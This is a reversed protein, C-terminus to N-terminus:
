YRKNRLDSRNKRYEYYIGGSESMRKGPLKAELQKDMEMDKRWGTQRPKTYLVKGKSEKLKYM